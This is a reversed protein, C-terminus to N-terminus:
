PKNPILPKVKPAPIVPYSEESLQQQVLYLNFIECPSGNPVAREVDVRAEIMVNDLISIVRLPTGIPCFIANGKAFMMLLGMDDHVKLRDLLEILNFSAVWRDGIAAYTDCSTILREGPIPNRSLPKPGIQAPPTKIRKIDVIGSMIIGNTLTPSVKGNAVDNVSSSALLAAPAVNPTQMQTIAAVSVSSKPEIDQIEPQASQHSSRSEDRKVGQILWLGVGAFSCGAIIGITINQILKPKLRVNQQKILLGKVKRAVTWPGDPSKSIEDDRKVLGAAADSKLQTSTSPGLVNSGRRIYWQNAM